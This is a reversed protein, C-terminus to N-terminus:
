TFGEGRRRRRDGYPLQRIVTGAPFRDSFQPEGKKVEFGLKELKAKAEVYAMGTVSPVREVAGHKVYMPMLVKDFLVLLAFLGIIAILLYKVVTKWSVRDERELQSSEDIEELENPSHRIITDVNENSEIQSNVTSIWNIDDLRFGPASERM